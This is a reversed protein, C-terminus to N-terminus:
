TSTTLCCPRPRPVQRDALVILSVTRTSMGYFDNYWLGVLALIVPLNDELKTEAFHKDMAHAGNLMEQFNEFGISLCISLGIASWLSYRGGVWDWFAFM